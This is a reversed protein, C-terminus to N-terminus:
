YVITSYHPKHLIVCLLTIWWLVKNKQYAKKYKIFMNSDVSSDNSRPIVLGIKSGMGRYQELEGM